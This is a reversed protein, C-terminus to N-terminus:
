VEYMDSELRRIRPIPACGSSRSNPQPPTKSASAARPLSIESQMQERPSAPLLPVELSRSASAPAGGLDESCLDVEEFHAAVRVKLDAGHVVDGDRSLDAPCPRVDKERWHSRGILM